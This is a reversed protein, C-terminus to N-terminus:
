LWPWPARWGSVRAHLVTRVLRQLDRHDALANRAHGGGPQEALPMADGDVFGLIPQAAVAVGDLRPRGRHVHAEDDIVLGVIRVQHLQEAMEPDLGAGGLHAERDRQVVPRQFIAGVGEDAEEGLGAVEDRAPEPRHQAVDQAEIAVGRRVGARQAALRGREAVIEASVAVAGSELFVVQQGLRRRDPRGGAGGDALKRGLGEDAEALVM